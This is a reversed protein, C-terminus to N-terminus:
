HSVVGRTVTAVSSYDVYARGIDAPAAASTATQGFTAASFPGIQVTTSPAVTVVLASLALGDIVVPTEVTVTTGTAGCAVILTRFGTDIIDGNTPGTGAPASLVPSLGTHTIKQTTVSTRAM